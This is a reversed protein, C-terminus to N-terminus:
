RQGTEPLDFLVELAVTQLLIRAGMDVSQSNYYSELFVATSRLIRRFLVPEDVKIELLAELLKEDYSFRIPLNVYSPKTFRTEGIKYGLIQMTVLVGARESVFDSDLVFGQYVVEFNEATFMAHGANPGYQTSNKALCCLFLLYRAEQVQEFEAYSLQRFDQKGLTVIGINRIPASTDPKRGSQRYMSLLDGVRSRLGSEAIRGAQTDFNSIEIDGIRITDVGGLALYPM